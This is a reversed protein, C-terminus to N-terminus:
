KSDTFYEDIIKGKFTLKIEILTIIFLADLEKSDSINIDDSDSVLKSLVDLVIHQKESKFLFDRNSSLNTHHVLITTMSRSSIITFVRAHLTKNIIKKSLTRIEILVIMNNCSTIITKNNAEDIIINEFDLIDNKILMNIKLNNILHIERRIIRRVLKEEFIKDTFYITVIIYESTEHKNISTERVNLSTIM